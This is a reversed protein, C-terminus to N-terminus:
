PALEGIRKMIEEPSEMVFVRALMVGHELATGCSLSIATCEQMPYMAPENAARSVLQYAATLAAASERAALWRDAMKAQAASEPAMTKPMAEAESHVRSVEEFLSQMAQRHAEISGHKRHQNAGREIVIIRRPDIFCKHARGGNIDPHPLTTLELMVM